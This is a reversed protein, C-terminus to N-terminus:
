PVVCEGRFVGFHDGATIGLRTDKEGGDTIHRTRVVRSNNVVKGVEKLKFRLTLDLTSINNDTGVPTLVRTNVFERQTGRAILHLSTIGEYVDELISLPLNRLMMRTNHRLTCLRLRNGLLLDTIQEVKPVRRQSSPIWISDRLSVSTLRHQERGHRIHWSSIIIQDLIIKNAEQLFLRLALDQLAVNGNPVVPALISANVFKGHASSSILDLASIRENVYPFVSLPLDRM